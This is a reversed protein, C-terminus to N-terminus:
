GGRRAALLADGRLHAAAVVRGAPPEAPPIPATPAPRAAPAALVAWPPLMVLALGV